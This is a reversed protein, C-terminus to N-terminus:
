PLHITVIQCPNRAIVEDAVAANLIGRLLRYAKAATTPHEEHLKAYWSRVMTPTLTRTPGGGVMVLKVGVDPGGPVFTVMLPVFRAPAVLTVKLPVVAVMMLSVAAFSLTFTGVAAVLPFIV